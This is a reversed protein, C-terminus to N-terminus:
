NPGHKLDTSNLKGEALGFSMRDIYAKLVFHLVNCNLLSCQAKVKNYHYYYYYYYYLFFNIIFVKNWSTVWKVVRWDEMHAEFCYFVILLCVSLHMYMYVYLSKQVWVLEHM